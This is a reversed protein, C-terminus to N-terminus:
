VMAQTVKRSEAYGIFIMVAVLAVNVWVFVQLVMDVSADIWYCYGFASVRGILVMVQLGLWLGQKRLSVMFPPVLAGIWISFYWPALIEVYRGAEVWNDGLFLVLGWGGFAWLLGFPLIGSMFLAAIVKLFLWSLSGGQSRVESAKQLMVMRFATGALDIPMGILRHAMAYFGVVDMGLWPGMLLIPLKSSVSSLVQAPMNFVPFDRYEGAVARLRVSTMRHRRKQPLKAVRSWMIGFNAFLGLLYGTIMGWNTAGFFLGFGLRSGVTFASQSIVAISVVRYLRARALINRGVLSAGSVWIALPIIWVWMGFTEILPIELPSLEVVALILYYTVALITLILLSLQRIMYNRRESMSMLIASHYNLTGVDGILTVIAVFLAAVGFNDPSFLRAIIPTSILTILTAGLKGSVLTSVNRVFNSGLVRRIM